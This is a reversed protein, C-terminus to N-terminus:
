LQLEAVRRNGTDAVAVKGTPSVAIGWPTMLEENGRGSKGFRGLVVGEASLRTVRGAGYEAVYFSGDAARAIDYPYYLSATQSDALLGVFEGQDTFIQIRNNIADAVYVRGQHWVLKSARQFEGPDTGFKGFSLLFKGDPSFKQVRDNGGYETVYLNGDPDQVVGVTYVFQGPGEGYEGLMSDVTGDPKFFVVRHYHTDAVAIRGDKLVCVGEPKGVSYEPMWWKRVFEGAQNYVLVRGANDLIYLDENPAFTMGRPAPLLIEELPLAFHRVSRPQLPADGASTSYCGPLCLSLGLLLGGLIARLSVKMGPRLEDRAPRHLFVRSASAASQRLTVESVSGSFRATTVENFASVDPVVQLREPRLSFPEGGDRALWAQAEHPTFWNTPGLFAAAEPSPPAHYLDAVRGQWVVQGRSLCIAHEAERLATEPSHTSFVLSRGSEQLRERIADWCRAAQATEVHALPEDMVLCNGDAALCRAVALRSREGMSLSPPKAAAVHTLEFRALIEEARREEGAPLICAIHDRVTLKPWLGGDAPSWSRTEEKDDSNLYRVTGSDPHEYDVLLNLLSTKGAGSSGLIATVGTNISLTVAKLRPRAPPGLNVNDFQWLPSSM